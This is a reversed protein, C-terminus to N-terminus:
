LLLFELVDMLDDQRVIPCATMHMTFVLALMDSFIKGKVSKANILIVRHLRKSFKAARLKVLDKILIRAETDIEVVGSLDIFLKSAGYFEIADSAALFVKSATLRSVKGNLNVRAIQNDSDLEFNSKESILQLSFRLKRLLKEKYIISLAPEVDISRLASLLKLVDANADDNSLYKQTNM